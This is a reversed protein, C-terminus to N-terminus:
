LGILQCARAKKKGVTAQELVRNLNDAEAALIAAQTAAEETSKLIKESSGFIL